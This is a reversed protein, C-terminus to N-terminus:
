APTEDTTEAPLPEHSLAPSASGPSPPPPRTSATTAVIPRPWTASSASADGSWFRRSPRASSAANPRASAPACVRGTAKTARRGSSASWAETRAAPEPSPRPSSSSPAARPVGRAGASTRAAPRASARSSRPRLRQLLEVLPDRRLDRLDDDALVLGDLEQQRRDGDATVDQEFAHRADRLCEDRVGGCASERELEP